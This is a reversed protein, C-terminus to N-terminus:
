KLYDYIVKRKELTIDMVIHTASVIERIPLDTLPALAHPNFSLAGPGTWGGKVVSDQIEYQVLECIRPTDDVDPIVRLLFGPKSAGRLVEDLDLPQYKYGMTATAVREGAYDLTGVLTDEQVELKPYGWKKPFGWRERGATIGALSNLFMMHVYNGQVGQYQVPIVQGSEFYDGVGAADRMHMVEFGVLPEGLKLPEPVVRRLADMDTKYTITFTARDWFKVPGKAYAPSTFPMAYASERVTKADM